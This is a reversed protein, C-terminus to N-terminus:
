LATFRDLFNYVTKRNIIYQITTSHFYMYEIRNQETRNYELGQQCQDDSLVDRLYKIFFCTRTM